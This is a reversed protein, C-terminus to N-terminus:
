STKRQAITALQQQFHKVLPSYLMDTELEILSIMTKLESRLPPTKTKFEDISPNANALATLTDRLAVWLDIELHLARRLHEPMPEQFLEAFMAEDNEALELSKTILTQNIGLLNRLGVNDKLIQAYHLRKTQRHKMKRQKHTHFFLM